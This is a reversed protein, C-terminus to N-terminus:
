RAHVISALTAVTNSDVGHNTDPTASSHVNTAGLSLLADVNGLRVGGGPMVAPRNGSAILTRLLESGEPATRKQGSTLVRDFGLSTLMRYANIPERVEDFARHFTLDINPSISRALEVLTRCRQEDVDSDADLIGFVVGPFGLEAISIVDSKMAGFEHDDYTFGGGRPRVMPFVPIRLNARADQLVGISPTTGGEPRGACLEIRDAGAQEAILADSVNYCCIELERPM